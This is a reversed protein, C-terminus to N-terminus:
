RSVSSPSALARELSARALWSMLSASALRGACCAGSGLDRRWRAGSIGAPWPMAATAVKTRATTLAILARQGGAAAAASRRRSDDRGHLLHLHRDDPSAQEPRCGGARQSGAAHRRQQELLEGQPM